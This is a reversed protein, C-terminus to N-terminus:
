PSTQAGDSSGSAREEARRGRPRGPRRGPRLSPRLSRRGLRPAGTGGARTEHLKRLASRGEDSLRSRGGLHEWGQRGSARMLAEQQWVSATVIDDWARVVERHVDALPTGDWEDSQRGAAARLAAQLRSFRDNFDAVDRLWGALRDTELMVPAWHGIQRRHEQQVADVCRQASSAWREDAVLVAVRDLHQEHRFGELRKRHAAVRALALELHVPDLDASVVGPRVGTVLLELGNRAEDAARGLARFAISSVREWKAAESRDLHAEVAWLGFFLLVFGSVLSGLFSHQLWFGNLTGPVWDIGISVVLVVLVPALLRRDRM